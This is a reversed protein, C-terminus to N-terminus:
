TLINQCIFKITIDRDYVRQIPFKVCLTNLTFKEPLHLPYIGNMCFVWRIFLTQKMTCITCLYIPKYCMRCVHANVQIHTNLTCMQLHTRLSPPLVPLLKQFFLRTELFLNILLVSFSHSSETCLVILHLFVQRFVAVKSGTHAHM